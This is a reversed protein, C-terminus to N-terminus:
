VLVNGMVVGSSGCGFAFRGRQTECRGGGWCPGGRGFLAGAGILRSTRRAPGGVLADRGFGFGRGNERGDDGGQARCRFRGVGTSCGGSM